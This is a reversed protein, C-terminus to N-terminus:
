CTIGLGVDVPCSMNQRLLCLLRRSSIVISELVIIAAICICVM